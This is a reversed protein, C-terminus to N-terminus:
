SSKVARWTKLFINEFSATSSSKQLYTDIQEQFLCKIAPLFIPLLPLEHLRVKMFDFACGINRHDCEKFMPVGLYRKSFHTMITYQANMKDAVDIVQSPTSHQKLIAENILNDEVSAEHILLTCNKGADILKQCPVTDGSYVIKWDFGHKLVIGHADNCHQVPVTILKIDGIFNSLKSHIENEFVLNKSLFLRVKSQLPEYIECFRRFMNRIQTPLILAVPQYPIGSNEFAEIRSKIVNFLGLYHDTHKHTIFICSIRQLVSSINSKGFYRVMQMFTGEGCDLLISNNHLHVLIASVNRIANSTASSTGLFLVEPYKKIELHTRSSIVSKIKTLENNFDPLETFIQLEDESDHKFVNDWSLKQVPRLHIQLMPPPHMIKSSAHLPFPEIKEQPLSRFVEPHILHLLEQTQFIAASSMSSNSSNLIFHHVNQHFKQIWAQYKKSTVIHYPAFHFVHTIECTSDVPSQYIHFKEENIFSDLFCESPCDVILITMAPCTADLVDAALITRGSSLTVDEGNKLKLLQPGIPVGFEVCKELNLDGLKKFIKCVYSFSLNAHGKFNPSSEISISEIQMNEDMYSNKKSLIINNRYSTIVNTFCEVGPPGYFTMKPVGFIDNQLFIDSLGGVNQWNNHTIFAHRIQCIDIDYEKCLRGVGEGCNFLFGRFETFLGVCRPQGVAGNGLVTICM